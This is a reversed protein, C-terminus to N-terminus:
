SDTKEAKHNEMLLHEVIENQLLHQDIIADIDAQTEVHYWVGDPYIVVTPGQRCRGLCGARNVRFNNPSHLGLLQLREKAYAWLPKSGQGACSQRGDERENLCFFLHKKLPMTVGFHQSVSINCDM